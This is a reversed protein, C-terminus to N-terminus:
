GLSLLLPVLFPVFFTLVMGSFASIIAYEKGCARTITPLTTDMSTAGGSAIPALTGFYRAFVGAFLLTIIERILNSILAVLGLTEGHLKSILVSSLSYYGFGSGVALGQVLSIDSLFMSVLGAGILTGIIISVPVLVIKAHMRKILQLADTNSGIGIGVFFILAYLIWIEVQLQAIRDPILSFRGLLFGIIFFLIVFISSKVIVEKSVTKVLLSLASDLPL